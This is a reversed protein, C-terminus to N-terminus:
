TYLTKALGMENFRPLPRSLFRELRAQFSPAINKCNVGLLSLGYAINSVGLPTIEGVTRRDAIQVAKEISQRLRADMEMWQVGMVALGYISNSFGQETMSPMLDLLALQLYSQTYAGYESAERSFDKSWSVGLRGLGHITNALEQPKMNNAKNTIAHILVEQLQPQLLQWECNLRSLRGASVIM